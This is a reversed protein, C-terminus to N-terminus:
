RRSMPSSITEPMPYILFDTVSAGDPMNLQVANLKSWLGGRSGGEPDHHEAMRDMRTSVMSEAVQRTTGGDGQSEFIGSLSYVFPGDQVTAFTFTLTDGGQDMQGIYGNSREGIGDLPLEDDMPANPDGERTTALDADIRLHGDIAHEDARFLYVFASLSRIVPAADPTAFPTAEPTAPVPSAADAPLEMPALWSRAIIRDLGEFESFHIQDGRQAHAAPPAAAGAAAATMLTLFARRNM